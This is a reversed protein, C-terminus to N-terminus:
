KSFPSKRHKIYKNTKGITINNYITDQFRYDKQSDYTMKKRISHRTYNDINKGNILIEGKSNKFFAMILKILTTKGSGTTGVILTHAPKAFTIEYGKANEVANIPIGEISTNPLKRYEVTKFNKAIEKKTQFHAQELGSFIEKDKESSEMIKKPNKGLGKYWSFLYFLMFIAFFEFSYLLTKSNLLLDQSLKFEFVFNNSVFM